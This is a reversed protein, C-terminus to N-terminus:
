VKDLEAEDRVAYVAIPYAATEYQSKRLIVLGRADIRITDGPHVGDFAMGNRSLWDQYSTFEGVRPGVRIAIEQLANTPQESM